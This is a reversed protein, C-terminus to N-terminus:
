PIFIYNEWSKVRLLIKRVIALFHVRETYIAVTVLSGAPLNLAAVEDDYEFLVPIRGLSKASPLSRIVGSASVQGQAIIPLLRLVKAKFIRGPYAKFALEAELGPKILPLVAQPFSAALIPREKHVFVMVPALPFPVAMQGPRLALQTVYGDTPAKVETQALEWRKADLEATIRRVEPNLGGSKAEFALRAEREKSQAQALKQRASRLRSGGASVKEKAKRVGAQADRLQASLNVVRQRDTDFRKRTITGKKLLTRSRKEEKRALTLESRRRTVVTRAQELAARAQRDLESESARLDSQAQATVAKAAALREELQLARTVADALLADLRDVQFQIPAPDIRFLVDGKKLPQNPQALVETVRGKVQSVIPTTVALIRGDNAVPHFLMLMLALFALQLVGILIATAITYTNTPIIKFKKFLLWCLTGYTGVILEVM